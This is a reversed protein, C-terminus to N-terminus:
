EVWNEVQLHFSGKAQLPQSCLKGNTKKTRNSHPFHSAQTKHTLANVM